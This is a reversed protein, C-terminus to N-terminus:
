NSIKFMKELAMGVCWPQLSIWIRSRKRNQNSHGNNATPAARFCRTITTRSTRMWVALAQHREILPDVYPKRQM